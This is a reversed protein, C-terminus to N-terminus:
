GNLRQFMAKCDDKTLIFEDKLSNGWGVVSDTTENIEDLGMLLKEGAEFVEAGIEDGFVQSCNDRYPMYAQKANELLEMVSKLNTLGSSVIEPDLGIIQSM